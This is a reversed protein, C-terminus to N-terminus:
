RTEGALGLKRCLRGLERQEDADLAAMTRTIRDVHVPLARDVLERGKETLHVVQVRRDAEDRTRQVLGDRELNDVVTTVNSGSRLIKQCLEGQQLPGLHKIAELVAIQSETLGFDRQLPPLLRGQVAIVSRNLKIFADLALIQDPSGQYHTPM